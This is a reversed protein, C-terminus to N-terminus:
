IIPNGNQWIANEYPDDKDRKVLFTSAWDNQEIPVTCAGDLTEVDVQEAYDHLDDGNEVIKRIEEDTLSDDVELTYVRWETVKKEVFITRSM